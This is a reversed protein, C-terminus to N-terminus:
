GLDTREVAEVIGWCFFLAVKHAWYFVGPLWGLALMDFILPILGAEVICWCFSLACGM